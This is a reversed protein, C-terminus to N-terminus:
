YEGYYEELTIGKEYLETALDVGLYRIHWHEYKYGTVEEKGQLYRVIFGYKHANERIWAGEKTNGFNVSLTGNYKALTIDMALGLQHESAGPPASYGSYPNYISKQYSYSRYGSIAYLYYNEKEAAKFLEELAGAAEKRMYLRNNSNASRVNPLVLDSPQYTSPLQRRKNVCVTLSDAEFIGEAIVRDVPESLVEEDNLVKNVENGDEYTVTYFRKNQGQVGESVVRSEGVPTKYDKVIVENFEIPEIVEESKTLVRNIVIKQNNKIKDEIKCNLKDNDNLNINAEKIAQGVRKETTKREIVMGDVEIIINKSKNGMFGYFISGIFVAIVINRILKKKM